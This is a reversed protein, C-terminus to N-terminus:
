NLSINKVTFTVPPNTNPYTFYHVCAPNFDIVIWPINYYSRNDIFFTVDGLYTNAQVGNSWWSYSSFYVYFTYNGYMDPKSTRDLRYYFAACGYCPTNFLQWDRVIVNTQQERQTQQQQAEVRNSVTLGVFM